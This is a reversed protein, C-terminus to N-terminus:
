GPGAQGANVPAAHNQSQNPEAALGYSTADAVTRHYKLRAYFASPDKPTVLWSDEHAMIDHLRTLAFRLAAGRCLIPLTKIEGPSLPRRADYGACFASAVAPLYAGHSDFGWANIAIALDYALASTCAFYYDIVGSIEDGSFLVNDPFYDGHIAGQPLDEPWRDAIFETEDALDRAMATHEPQSARALCTNALDRWANVSWPNDLRGTYDSAQLHIQALMAGATRAQDPTPAPHWSGGLWAILAAPRQNLTGIFAGDHNRMTRPAPVGRDALHEALGLYFPLDELRTRKEFLTLAFDQGGATVRYNTNEVGQAIPQMASISGVPYNALFREAEQTSVNTFVAM